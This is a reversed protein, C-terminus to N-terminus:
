AGPMSRSDSIGAMLEMTEENKFRMESVIGSLNMELANIREAM